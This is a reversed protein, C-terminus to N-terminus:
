FHLLSSLVIIGLLFPLSKAGEGPVQLIPYIIASWADFNNPSSWTMADVLDAMILLFRLAAGDLDGCLVWVLM